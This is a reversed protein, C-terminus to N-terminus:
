ATSDAPWDQLPGATHGRGLLFVPGCEGSWWPAVQQGGEEDDDGAREVHRQHGGVQPDVARPGARGGHVPGGGAAGGLGRTPRHTTRPRTSRFDPGVVLYLGPQRLGAGARGGDGPGARGVPRMRPPGTPYLPRPRRGVQVGRGRAAVPLALTVAVGGRRRDPRDRVVPPGCTPGGVAAFGAVASRAPEPRGRRRAPARRGPRRSTTACPGSSKALLDVRRRPARDSVM